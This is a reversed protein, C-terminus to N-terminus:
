PMPADHCLCVEESEVYCTKTHETTKSAIDNGM